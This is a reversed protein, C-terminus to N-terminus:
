CFLAYCSEHHISILYSITAPVQGPADGLDCSGSKSHPQEAESAPRVRLQPLDPMCTDPLATSDDAHSSDFAGTDTGRSHRDQFAQLQQLASPQPLLHRQLYRSSKSTSQLPSTQVVQAASGNLTNRTRHHSTAKTSSHQTSHLGSTRLGSSGFHGSNEFAIHPSNAQCHRSTQALQSKSGTLDPGQLATLQQDDLQLIERLSSLIDQLTHLWRVLSLSTM